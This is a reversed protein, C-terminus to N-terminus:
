AARPTVTSPWLSTSPKPLPPPSPALSQITDRDIHLVPTNAVHEEEDAVAEFPRSTQRKERLAAGEFSCGSSPHQTCSQTRVAASQHRAQVWWRGMAGPLLAVRRRVSGEFGRAAPELGARGVKSNREQGASGIGIPNVESSHDRM